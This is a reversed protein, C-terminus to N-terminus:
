PSVSRERKQQFWHEAEEELLAVCTQVLEGIPRVVRSSPAFEVSEFSFWSDEGDVSGIRYRQLAGTSHVRLKKPEFDKHLSTINKRAPDAYGLNICFRGGSMSFQVNVLAVFGDTDRYFNPFSGKFNMKRLVPVFTEKLAAKMDTSTPM